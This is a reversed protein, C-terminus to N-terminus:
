ENYTGTLFNHEIINLEKKLTIALLNEKTAILQNKITQLEILNINAIKYGEEYMSLLEQQSALLEASTKEVQTLTTISNKLERLRFAVQQSLNETVFTAKQSELKAIRKEQSKTNFIVLPIDVSVRAVRQNRGQEFEGNLNIWELKNANLEANSSASKVKARSFEIEANASIDNKNSLEFSYETDVHVEEGLGSWGMLRYYASTKTVRAQALFNEARKVDLSAQLSKVRAITGNEYREKSINAINQVIKLEEQALEEALVSRKYKAYLSSLQTIFNARSLKVSAKTQEKQAKAFAKRSGSIGWLRIPQAIAARYGLVSNGVDPSFNSAELSFTPNEYRTTLEANQEAQKLSLANTKLLPSKELSDALFTEFDVAHLSACLLSSLLINQFM